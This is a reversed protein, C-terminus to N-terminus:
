QAQTLGALGAVVFFALVYGIIAHVAFYIIQGGYLRERKPDNFFDAFEKNLEVIPLLYDLSAGLCWLWGKGKAREPSAPLPSFFWLVIFGLATFFAVWVLILFIGKGLGYGITWKLLFLGAAEWYKGDGWNETMERDRAASLVANAKDSYGGTRFVTALQQYSQYTFRDRQLWCEYSESPHLLMNEQLREYTFGQLDIKSPFPERQKECDIDQANPAADQANPAADQLIGIHTNHLTLKEPLVPAWQPSALLLAKGIDAETLDLGPLVAETLDLKGAIQAGYFEPAKEFFAQQLYLNGGVRLNDAKVDEYFFSNDMYLDGEVKAGSLWLGMTSHVAKGDQGKGDQGKGMYLNGSVNLRDAEVGDEFDSGNSLDLNGEVKASRLDLRGGRVATDHSFDLQGNVHLGEAYFGQGFTSGKFSLGGDFQAWSLEVKEEFRSRELRVGSIIHAATLDLPETVSAGRVRLGQRALVDRWREETLIHKIFAASITRCPYDWHFDDVRLDPDEEAKHGKAMEERVYDGAVEVGKTRKQKCREDLNAVVGSQASELVFQEADNLRELDFQEAPKLEANKTGPITPLAQSPLDQQARVPAAGVLLLYTLLIALVRMM